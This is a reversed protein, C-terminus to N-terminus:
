RQTPPSPPPPPPPQRMHQAILAAQQQQYRLREQHKQQPSKDICAWALAAIWGVVTWGAFITILWVAAQNEGRSISAVIGPAFYLIVGGILLLVGGASALNDM